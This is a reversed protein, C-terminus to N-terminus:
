FLEIWRGDNGMKQILATLVRNAEDPSCHWAILDGDDLAVGGTVSLGMGCEICLSKNEMLQPLKLHFNRGVMLSSLPRSVHSYYLFEYDSGSVSFICYNRDHRSFSHHITGITAPKTM